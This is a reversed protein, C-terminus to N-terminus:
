GNPIWKEEKVNVGESIRKFCRWAWRHFFACYRHKQLICLYMHMSACVQFKCPNAHKRDYAAKQKKQAISINKEV